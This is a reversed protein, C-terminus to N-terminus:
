LGATDLMLLCAPMTADLQKPDQFVLAEQELQNAIAERSLASEDILKAITRVFFEQGREAMPPYNLAESRGAAQLQATVAVAAACKLAAQQELPLPRLEVAQASSSPATDVDSPATSQVALFFTSLALSIHM